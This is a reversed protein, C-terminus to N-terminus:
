LVGGAWAPQECACLRRIYAVLARMQENSFFEGFAPMRTSGDLVFGGAHIGDFLTDDPRLGMATSDAHVAPPVPLHTANWGNGRGESGHCSACYRAYLEAGPRQSELAIKASWAPHQPDALSRAASGTWPADSELLYRALRLADRPLIPQRPMASGPSAASPELITEVVYSPQLREGIGDLSPALRGGQGDRQHCGLCALRDQFMRETETRTFDTLATPESAASRGRAMLFDVIEDREELSLRFDPMRSGPATAHAMSRVPSPANLFEQLWAVQVRAGQRALDPGRLEPSAEAHSHCGACGLAEFIDGGLTANVEPYRDRVERLTGDGVEAGLYLALALREPEDLGFDPMRSRGIDDRRVQPDDLYDFVFAAELPPGSPGLEPARTRIPTDEPIGSHCVACGLEAILAAGDSQASAVAPRTAFALSLSLAGVVWQFRRPM